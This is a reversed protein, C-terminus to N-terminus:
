NFFFNVPTSYPITPQKKNPNVKISHFTDSTLPLKNKTKHNEKKKKTFSLICKQTPLIGCNASFQQIKTMKLMPPPFHPLPLGYLQLYIPPALSPSPSLHKCIGRLTVVSQTTKQYQKIFKQIFHIQINQMQKYSEELFCLDWLSEASVM